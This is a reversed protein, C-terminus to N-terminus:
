AKEQFYIDVDPYWGLKEYQTIRKGGGRLIIALCPQTCKSHFMVQLTCQRKNLGHEPQGIWTNHNKTESRMHECTTKIVIVFPVSNQDVQSAANKETKGIKHTM